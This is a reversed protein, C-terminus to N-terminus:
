TGELGSEVAQRCSWGVRHPARLMCGQVDWQRHGCGDGLSARAVRCMLSACLCRLGRLCAPLRDASARCDSALSHPYPIGATGNPVHIMTLLSTRTPVPELHVCGRPGGFEQSHWPTHSHSASHFGWPRSAGRKGPDLPLEAAALRRCFGLCHTVGGGPVLAASGAEAPSPFFRITSEVSWRM